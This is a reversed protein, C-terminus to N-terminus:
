AAILPDTHTFSIRVARTAEIPYVTLSNQIIRVFPALRAREDRSRPQLQLAPEVVPPPAQRQAEARNPNETATSKGRGLDKIVELASKGSPEVLKPNKDLNLEVIMDELLSSSKLILIDTNITDSDDAQLTVEGIKLVTSNEKDIKIVTSAQYISKKGFMQLAVLTTIILAVSLVLWKRKRVIRWLSRLHLDENAEPGYGYDYADSARGNGRYDPRVVLAEETAPVRDLEANEDGM